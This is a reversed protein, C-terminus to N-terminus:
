GRPRSERRACDVAARTSAIPAASIARIFCGMQLGLYPAAIAGTSHHQRAALRLDEFQEGISRLARRHRRQHAGTSSRWRACERNVMVSRTPPEPVSLAGVTTRTRILSAPRLANACWSPLVFLRLIEVLNAISKNNANPISAPAPTAASIALRQGARRRRAKL